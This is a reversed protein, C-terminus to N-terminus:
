KAAGKLGSMLKSPRGSPLKLPEERRKKHALRLLILYIQVDELIRQNHRVYHLLKNFAASRKESRLYEQIINLEKPTFIYSRL